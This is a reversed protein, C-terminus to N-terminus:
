FTLSLNAGISAQTEDAYAASIDLHVVDFPSFGIGATVSDQLSQELNHEYGLRLQAWHFLDGEFGFRVFQTDDDVGELRTQKTLDADIAFTFYKLQYAAGLTVKPDINYRHSKGAVELTDIKQSILDIASLGVSIEKWQYLLGFDINFTNEKTSSEDYDSLEFDDLTSMSYFSHLQQFKPSVGVSLAYGDLDFKKAFTVGVDLVGVGVMSATSDQYTKEVESWGSGLSAKKIDTIAIVNVYNRSFLGISVVDFPIALAAGVSAEIAVPTNGSLSNLDTAFADISEQSSSDGLGEFDDQLDMITSISEDKDSARLGISPLLLGFDDDPGFNALLAPNLFGSSLYNGSAVGTGGMGTTRGDAYFNAMALNSVLLTTWVGRQLITKSYGM